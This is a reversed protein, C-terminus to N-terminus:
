KRLYIVNKNLSITTDIYYHESVYKSVIKTGYLDFYADLNKSENVSPFFVFIKPKHLELDEICNKVHYNSTLTDPLNLLYSDVTRLPTGRECKILLKLADGSGFFCIM